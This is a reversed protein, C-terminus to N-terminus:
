ADLSERIQRKWEETLMNGDSTDDAFGLEWVALDPMDYLSIGSLFDGYLQGLVCDRCSDINLESLDVREQWGPDNKNLYAIGNAVREPMGLM